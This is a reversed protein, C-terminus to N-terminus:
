HILPHPKSPYCSSLDYLVYKFNPHCADSSDLKRGTRRSLCAFTGSSRPALFTGEKLSPRADCIQSPWSGLNANGSKFGSTVCPGSPGWPRARALRQGWRTGCNKQSMSIYGCRERLKKSLGPDKAVGLGLGLAKAQAARRGPFAERVCMVDSEMKGRHIKPVPIEGPGLVPSPGM